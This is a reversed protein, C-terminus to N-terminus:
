QFESSGPNLDQSEKEKGESELQRSVFNNHSHPSFRSSLYTDTVIIVMGIYLALLM